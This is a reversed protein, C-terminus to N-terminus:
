AIWDKPVSASCMKSVWQGLNEFVAKPELAIIMNEQLLLDQRRGIVPLENVELGIGHGVFSAGNPAAGM